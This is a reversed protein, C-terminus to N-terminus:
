PLLLEWALGLSAQPACFHQCPQETGLNQGPGRTLCLQGWGRGAQSFPAGCWAPGPSLGLGKSTCPFPLSVDRIEREKQASVRGWLCGQSPCLRPQSSTVGSGGATGVACVPSLCLQSVPSLVPALSQGEAEKQGGRADRPAKGQMKRM